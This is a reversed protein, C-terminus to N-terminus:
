AAMPPPQRLAQVQQRIAGRLEDRGAASKRLVAGVAGQLKERDQVTIDKATVVVIPIELAGAGQRLTAILEFGDMDPMLLEMVIVGPRRERMCALGGRACDAEVVDFGEADLIRRMVHREHPDDDILLVTSPTEDSVARPAAAVPRACVNESAEATSPVTPIDVTFTSGHGATSDASIRGGMMESFRRSIALGLGTGGYKRTTSADVQTFDKFLRGLQDPTMGIGTDSVQFRVWERGDVTRRSAELTIVGHDTFKSANSLLNYLIQRVKTLDNEIYGLDGACRVDLANANKEVLPKVTAVVDKILTLVDFTEVYLEM